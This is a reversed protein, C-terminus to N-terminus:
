AALMKTGDVGVRLNITRWVAGAFQSPHNVVPMPKKRALAKLLIDAEIICDHWAMHREEFDSQNFEFRYANEASTSRWKGSASPEADYHLPVSQGWYDWIDLLELPSELFKADPNKTLHKYTEPMWKFDFAANYACGIVRHGKLRQETIQKNYENRVEIISAPIIKRDFTDQFYYGMKEKFFPVDAEFAEKIIFSGKGYVKGSRDITRWAIDFAIRNKITTEIDTVMFLTPKKPM